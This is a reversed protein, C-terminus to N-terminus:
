GMDGGLSLGMVTQVDYGSESALWLKMYAAIPAIEGLPRIGFTDFYRTSEYSIGSSIGTAFIPIGRRKAEEFFSIASPSVTNLTGSHYTEHLIYRIKAYIPPYSLGTCPSIRLIQEACPSLEGVSFPETKDASEHYEPNREFTGDTSDIFGYAQHKLSYFADSFPESALLRTGRHISIKTDAPNKYSVFVGSGGQAMIFSVAGFLNPIANANPHELPHNSSVLVIPQTSNGFAYALAAATYQLTDTGHTIIIGDYKSLNKRVCAILASLETGTLNESLATYPQATDYDPLTHKEAYSNLLLYPKKADVSIYEGNTTSGITGGTFIFLLKM